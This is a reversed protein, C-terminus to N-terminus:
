WVSQTCTSYAPYYSGASIGLGVRKSDSALWWTVKSGMWMGANRAKERRGIGPVTLSVGAQVQVCVSCLLFPFSSRCGLNRHRWQRNQVEQQAHKSSVSMWLTSSQDYYAVQHEGWLAGCCSDAHTDTEAQWKRESGCGCSANRGHSGHWIGKHQCNTLHLQVVKWPKKDM